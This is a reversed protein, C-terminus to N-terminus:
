NLARKMKHSRFVFKHQCIYSFLFIIVETLLKAYFLPVGIRENLTSLVLYNSALVVLVLGYYKVLSTSVGANKGNQFVYTKNVTYNFISSFLRAGVTSILLNTTVFQFLFLLVFDLVGSLMSSASFKIIPLYVRFSDAIARFHSSKNDNYYVTDIDIQHFDYGDKKADLLMNMEYEFREGPIQCLWDFMDASYGRLGTQTDLVKTGTSLSYIFRTVSNGFRSRLPVDGVFHRCGLIIHSKFENIKDAIKMIDKPLHQGDSDACIVGEEENHEKLYKFGTKLACGKGQNAKHTLITCGKERAIDFINKYASGSGDDVILIKYGCIAKIKEILLLLRSDPEYSPILVTM